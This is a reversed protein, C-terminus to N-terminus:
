YFVALLFIGIEEDWKKNVFLFLVLSFLHGIYNSLLVYRKFFSNYVGAKHYPYYDITLQTFSLQM